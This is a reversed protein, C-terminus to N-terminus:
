RLEIWRRAVAHAGLHTEIGGLRQARVLHCELADANGAFFIHANVLQEVPRADVPTFCQLRLMGAWWPMHDPPCVLAKMRLFIEPVVSSLSAMMVLVVRLDIFAVVNDAAIRSAPM